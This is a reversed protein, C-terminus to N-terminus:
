QRAASGASFVVLSNAGGAFGPDRAESPIVTKLRYPSIQEESKGRGKGFKVILVQLDGRDSYKRSQPMM